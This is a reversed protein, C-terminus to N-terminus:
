KQKKQLTEQEQIDWYKKSPELIDPGEASNKAHNIVDAASCPSYILNKRDSNSAIFYQGSNEDVFVNNGNIAAYRLENGNDKLYSLKKAPLREGNVNISEETDSHALYLGGNQLKEKAENDNQVKIFLNGSSVLQEPQAPHVPNKSSSRFRRVVTGIIVVILLVAVIGGAVGFGIALRKQTKSMGGVVENLEQELVLNSM